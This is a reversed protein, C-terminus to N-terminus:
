YLKRKPLFIKNIILQQFTPSWTGKQAYTYLIVEDFPSGEFIGLSGQASLSPLNTRRAAGFILDLLQYEPLHNYLDSMLFADRVIKARNAPSLTKCLLSVAKSIYNGFM